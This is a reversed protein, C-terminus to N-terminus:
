KFILGKIKKNPKPEKLCRFINAIIDVTWGNGLMKYRQSNSVGETYGEPVTQLRECELPTLKRVSNNEILKCNHEWSSTTISPCKGNKAVIGGKNVGRPTQVMLRKESDDFCIAYYNESARITRFKKKNINIPQDSKYKSPFNEICYFKNRDVNGDEIIDKLFIRKDKPKCVNPINTWYLRVRNQASVLASNIRIPRVGLLRDIVVQWEKKM